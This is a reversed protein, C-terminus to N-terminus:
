GQCSYSFGSLSSTIPMSLKGAQTSGAACSSDAAMNTTGVLQTAYKLAKCRRTWLLTSAAEQMGARGEGM